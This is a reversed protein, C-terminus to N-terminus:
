VEYSCSLFEDEWGRGLLADIEEVGGLERGEVRFTLISRVGCEDEMEEMEEVGEVKGGSSGLQHRCLREEGFRLATLLYAGVGVAHDDKDQGDM